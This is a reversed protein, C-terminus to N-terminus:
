NITCKNTAKTPFGIRMGNVQGRISQKWGITIGLLLSSLFVFELLQVNKFQFNIKIIVLLLASVRESTREGEVSSQSSSLLSSIERYRSCNVRPQSFCKRVISDCAIRCATLLYKGEQRKVAGFNEKRHNETQKSQGRAKSCENQHRTIRSFRERSFSGNASWIEMLLWFCSRNLKLISRRFM